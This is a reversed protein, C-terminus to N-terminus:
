GAEELGKDVNDAIVFITELRALKLVRMVTSAVDALIFKKGKKTASQFAELLSAVGSSDIVVVASLDVVVTFGRAVSDLLITRVKGSTELDIDGEFSVVIADGQERTHHKM